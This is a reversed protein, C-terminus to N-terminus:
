QRGGTQRVHRVPGHEAAAGFASESSKPRRLWALKVPIMKLPEIGGSGVTSGPLQGLTGDPKIRLVSIQNSGADVALLYRGNDTVQLSGQSGVATGTGSGGTAFPSGPVPTLTGDAHRDFAAITNVPATNDNVYLHGVVDFPHASATAALLGSIAFVLVALRPWIRAMLRM